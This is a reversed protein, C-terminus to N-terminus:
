RDGEAEHAAREEADQIDREADQQAARWVEASEFAEGCEMCVLHECDWHICISDSV